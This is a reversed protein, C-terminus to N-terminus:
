EGSQGGISLSSTTTTGIGINGNAALFLSSTATITNTGSFVPIDPPNSPPPPSPSHSVPVLPQSRASSVSVSHASSTAASYLVDTGPNSAVLGGTLPTNTPSTTFTNTGSFTNSNALLTSSAAFITIPATGNFSVGNILQANQLATATAANGGISLTSTSTQVFGTGAANTYLIQNGSYSALGTGGNAVNLTGSLSPAFTFAGATNTINLGLNLGTGNTSSTGFTIAGTQASGYTQAASLLGTNTVNGNAYALGSSFTTTATWSPVGNM